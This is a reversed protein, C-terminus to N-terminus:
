APLEAWRNTAQLSALIAAEEPSRAVLAAGTLPVTNRGALGHAAVLVFTRGLADVLTTDELAVDERGRGAALAAFLARAAATARGQQTNAGEGAGAYEAEGRRLVVRCHADHPGHTRTDYRVLVLRDRSPEPEPEPQAVVLGATAEAYVDERVQAVSVIRRDVELGLGASLASEVNRVVQKPQLEPTSLVHIEELRGDAGAIARVSVVGALSSLLREVSSELSSEAPVTM